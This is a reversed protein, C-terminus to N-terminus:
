NCQSPYLPILSKDNRVYTILPIPPHHSSIRKVRIEFKLNYFNLDFKLQIRLNAMKMIQHHEPWRWSRGEAETRTCVRRWFELSDWCGSRWTNSETGPRRQRRLEEEFYLTDTPSILRRIEPGSHKFAENSPPTKRLYRNLVGNKSKKM